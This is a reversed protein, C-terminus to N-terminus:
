QKRDETVAIATVELADSLRVAQGCQKCYLFRDSPSDSVFSDNVDHAYEDDRKGNPCYRTFPGNM